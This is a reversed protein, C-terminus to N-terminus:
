LINPCIIIYIYIYINYIIPCIIITLGNWWGLSYRQFCKRVTMTESVHMAYRSPWTECLSKRSASDILNLLCQWWKSARIQTGVFITWLNVKSSPLNSRVSTSSLLRRFLWNLIILSFKTTIQFLEFIIKTYVQSSPDAIWHNSLDSWVKKRLM